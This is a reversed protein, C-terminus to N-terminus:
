LAAHQQVPGIVNDLGYIDDRFQMQGDAGMWATAYFLYIPVQELLGVHRTQGSNITNAIRQRDWRSGALLATALELPKEVRVCGSSIARTGRKFLSRDNTDHLYIADSDPIMFKIRGLSNHPGPDQRLLYRFNRSNAKSWDISDLPIPTTSDWDAFVRIRKRTLYAPDKRAEPLIDNVVLRRPVNWYPNFVLTSVVKQFVPTPRYSSGIIIRMELEVEQQRILQLSYDTLNVWIYREGLQRPLERWRKMNFAIQKVRYEPPINMLRRTIPGARGDATQGHRHQFRKLSQELEADFTDETLVPLAAAPAPHDGYLILLRRLQGVEPTVMGRELTPGDPLPRWRRAAALLQYHQLADRLRLYDPHDPTMEQLLQARADDTRIHQLLAVLTDHHRSRGNVPTMAPGNRGLRVMTGPYLRDSFVDDYYAIFADTLLLDLANLAAPEQEAVQRYRAILDLHYGYPYAEDASTEALSQWLLLGATSLERGDLWLPEYENGVYLTALTDPYNLPLQALLQERDDFFWHQLSGRHDLAIDQPVDFASRASTCGGLLACGAVLWLSLWLATISAPFAATDYSTQM